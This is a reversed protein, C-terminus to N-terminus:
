KGIYCFAAWNEVKYNQEILSIMSKRLSVPGDRSNKYETYFANMLLVTSTDQIRWLTVIMSCAGAVLLSRSLGLIGDGTVKGRATNCCSLVFLETNLNLDQIEASTLVGSCLSNSKALIIAGKVIYDGNSTGQSESLDDISNELIAHTALHIISFRPLCEIVREKTAESGCLLRGDIISMISKSEKEAGPLQSIEQLPMTPNGVSLLSLGSGKQETKRTATVQLLYLSPTFSIVFKEVLYQGNEPNKLACFPVGFLCGHPVVILSPVSSTSSGKSGPKYLSTPQILLEYLEEFKDKSKVASNLPAPVAQKSKKPVIDRAAGANIMGDSTAGLDRMLGTFYEEDFVSSETSISNCQNFPVKNFNCPSTSSPDIHWIYLLTGRAKLPDEVISYLLLHAEGLLLSLSAIEMSVHESLVNGEKDFIDLINSLFPSAEHKWKKTVLDALARARSYEAVLLAAEHHGQTILIFQLLSYTKSQNKEFNGIKLLDDENSLRGRVELGTKVAHYACERAKDMNTKKESATEKNYIFLHDLILENQMIAIGGTDLTKEAIELYLRHYKIAEKHKGVARCASGMNGYATGLGLNNGLRKAINGSETFLSMCLEHEGLGLYVKGINNLSWRYGATDDLTTKCLQLRTYLFKLANEYEQKGMSYYTFGIYGSCVAVSYMYGHNICYELFRKQRKLAKSHCGSSRYVRGLEAKREVVKYADGEDKGLRISEKFHLQANHFDAISRYINGLSQHLTGRTSISLGECTVLPKLAELAKDNQSTAYVCLQQHIFTLQHKDNCEEKPCIQQAKEYCGAAIEIDGILRYTHGLLLHASYLMGAFLLPTDHLIRILVRYLFTCICTSNM